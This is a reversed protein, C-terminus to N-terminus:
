PWTGQRGIGSAPSRPRVLLRHDQSPLLTAHGPEYLQASLARIQIVGRIVAICGGIEAHVSVAEIRLHTWIQRFDGYAFLADAEIAKFKVSPDVLIDGAVPTGCSRFSYLMPRLLIGPRAESGPDPVDVLDDEPPSNALASACSSEFFRFSVECSHHFLCPLSWIYPTRGERVNSCAAAFNTSSFWCLRLMAVVYGARPQHRPDSVHRSLDVHTYEAM